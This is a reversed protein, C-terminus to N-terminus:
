IKVSLIRSITLGMGMHGDSMKTYFLVKDKNQLNERTFRQGDDCVM